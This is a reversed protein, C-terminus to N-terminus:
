DPDRLVFRVPVTVEGYVWPLPAARAVAREAARDLSLSGSSQRTRVKEPAGNRAIEFVVITEGAVGRTQAIPPYVAAAQVRRAIQSLRERATPRPHSADRIPDDKATAVPALLLLLATLAAAPRSTM